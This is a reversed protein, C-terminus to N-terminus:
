HGDHTLNGDADGIPALVFKSIRFLNWHELNLVKRGSVDAPKLLSVNAIFQACMRKEWWPGVLGHRRTQSM